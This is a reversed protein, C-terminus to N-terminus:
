DGAEPRVQIHGIHPPPTIPMDCAKGTLMPPSRGCLYGSNLVEFRLSTVQQAPGQEKYLHANDASRRPRARPALAGVVGAPLGYISVLLLSGYLILRYDALGTLFEPLLTLAVSGALPGALSDGQRVNQGAADIADSLLRNGATQSVIELAGLIPVGSKLMAVWMLAGVVVYADRDNVKALLRGWSGVVPKLVVPYGFAEIAELAAESTFATANHPQPIDDRALAASTMLKDGCVEAVSATNVTPVGFANLMRLGSCAEAVGLPPDGNLMVINGQQSVSAGFTELLYQDRKHGGDYRVQEGLLCSSIGLKLPKEM